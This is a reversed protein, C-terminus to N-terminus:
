GNPHEEAKHQMAANRGQVQTGCTKCKYAAHFEDHHQPGTENTLAMNCKPCRFSKVQRGSQFLETRGVRSNHSDLLDYIQQRPFHIVPVGEGEKGLGKFTRRYPIKSMDNALQEDDGVIPLNPNPKQRRMWSYVTRPQVGFLAAVEHHTIWDTEEPERRNVIKKAM